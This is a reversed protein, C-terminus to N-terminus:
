IRKGLDACSHTSSKPLLKFSCNLKQTPFHYLEMIIQAEYTDFETLFMVILQKVEFVIDFINSPELYFKIM